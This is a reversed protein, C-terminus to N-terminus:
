TPAFLINGGDAPGGPPPDKMEQNDTAINMRKMQKRLDLAPGKKFGRTLRETLM